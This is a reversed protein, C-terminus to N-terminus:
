VHAVESKISAIFELGFNLAEEIDGDHTGYIAIGPRVANLSYEPYLFVGGTNNIHKIGLEIGKAELKETFEIFKSFQKKTFEPNKESDAFHSFIGTININPLKSINEIEVLSEDTPKFGLRNMGTDLKIHINTAMGIKESVENIKEATDYSYVTFTLNNRISSEYLYEPTYGLVLIEVDKFERRIRIGESTAAVAFNSIGIETLHRVIEVDGMSYANSKVIAIIKTSEPIHSRIAEINRELKDLDIEIRSPRSFM